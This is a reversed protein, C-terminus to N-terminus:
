DLRSLSFVQIAHCLRRVPFCAIASSTDNVMTLHSDMTNYKTYTHTDISCVCVLFPHCHHDSSSVDDLSLNTNNLNNLGIKNNDRALKAGIRFEIELKIFTNYTSFIQMWSPAHRYMTCLNCYKIKHVDNRSSRDGWFGNHTLTPKQEMADRTKSLDCEKRGVKMRSGHTVAVSFIWSGTLTSSNGTVVFVIICAVIAIVTQFIRWRSRRTTLQHFSQCCFPPALTSFDFKSSFYGFKLCFVKNWHIIIM